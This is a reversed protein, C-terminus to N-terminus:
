LQAINEYVQAVCGRWKSLYLCEMQASITIKSLTHKLSRSKQYKHIM